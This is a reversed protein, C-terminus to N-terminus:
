LAALTAELVERIWEPATPTGRGRITVTTAWVMGNLPDTGDETGYCAASVHVQDLMDFATMRLEYRM